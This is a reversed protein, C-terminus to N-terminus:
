SGEDQMMRDTLLMPNANQASGKRQTWNEAVQRVTRQRTTLGTLIKIPVLAVGALVAARTRQHGTIIVNNEDVEIPNIIGINVISRALESLPSDGSNPYPNGGDSLTSPHVWTIQWLGNQGVAPSLAQNFSHAVIHLGEAVDRTLHKHPIGDIEKQAKNIFSTAKKIRDKEEKPTDLNTALKQLGASAMKNREEATHGYRDRKAEAM